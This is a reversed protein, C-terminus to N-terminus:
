GCGFHVLMELGKACQRVVANFRSKPIVPGLQTVHVKQVSVDPLPNVPYRSRLPLLKLRRPPLQRKRLERKGAAKVPLRETTEPEEEFQTEGGHM